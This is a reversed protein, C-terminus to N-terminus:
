KTQLWIDSRQLNLQECARQVGLGVLDDRYHKRQGATDIGRFGQTLATYVLDATQTSKWATGYLLRPMTAASEDDM